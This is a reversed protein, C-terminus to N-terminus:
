FETGIFLVYIIHTFMNCGFMVIFWVTLLVFGFLAWLYTSYNGYLNYYWMILEFSTWLTNTVLEEIWFLTSKCTYYFSESVLCIYPWLTRSLRLILLSSFISGINIMREGTAGRGWEICIVSGLLTIYEYHLVNISILLDSLYFGYSSINIQAQFACVDQLTVLAGRNGVRRISTHEGLWQQHWRAAVTPLYKHSPM